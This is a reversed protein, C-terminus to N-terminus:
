GRHSVRQAPFFVLQRPRAVAPSWCRTPLAVAFGVDLVPCHLLDADVRRSCAHCFITVMMSNIM